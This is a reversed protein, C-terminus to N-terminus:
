AQQVAHRARCVNGSGREGEELLIDKGGRLMATRIEPGKTDLAVGILKGKAAAVKRVRDLTQPPMAATPPLPRTPPQRRLGRQRRRASSRRASIGAAGRCSM